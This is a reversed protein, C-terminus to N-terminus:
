TPLCFFQAAFLGTPDPDATPFGICKRFLGGKDIVFHRMSRPDSERQSQSNVAHPPLISPLHVSLYLNM